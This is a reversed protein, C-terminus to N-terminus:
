MFISRFTPVEGRDRDRNLDRKRGVPGARAPMPRVFTPATGMLAERRLGGRPGTEVLGHDLARGPQRGGGLRGSIQASRDLVLCIQHSDQRARAADPRSRM